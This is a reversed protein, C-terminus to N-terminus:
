AFIYSLFQYIIKAATFDPAKNVPAPCLEVIDFGVINRKRTVDRLFHMMRYYDLGGPEPTGTSPMISPDLVDLDITVYVNSCPLNAANDYLTSDHYLEHAYFIRDQRIFPLEEAAVSRIGVQVAPVMEVVRSMVCAHNLSSGEYQQRMDAHADLQLVCLDDFRESFARVSGISVTHNGGVIVPFKNDGLIDSVRNRVALVLEEPSGGTMVPEATYIGKRHVETKTEINYFELNVSAEMIAEPGKDSGKMWTSTADYPVPLIIIGSSEYDYLVEAGGFNM